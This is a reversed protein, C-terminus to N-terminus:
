RAAPGSPSAATEQAPNSKKSVAVGRSAAFAALEASSFRHVPGPPRTPPEFKPRKTFGSRLRLARANRAQERGAERCRDCRKFPPTAERRCRQSSCQM